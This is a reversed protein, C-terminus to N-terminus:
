IHSGYITHHHHPESNFRTMQLKEVYCSSSHHHQSTIQLPSRCNIDVMRREAREEGVSSCGDRYCGVTWIRSFVKAKLGFSKLHGAAGASSFCWATLEGKWLQRRSRSNWRCCCINFASAPEAVLFFFFDYQKKTHNQSCVILMLWATTLRAFWIFVARGAATKFVRTEVWTM